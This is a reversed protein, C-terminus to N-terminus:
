KYTIAKGTPNYASQVVKGNSSVCCVTYTYKTGSKVKKDTWTTSATYGMNVWKGKGTKRYIRFKVAGKPKTFVFKVTKGSKKVSKLTPAAIYKITKGTTNYASTVTKGNSSVACVTYTYSTGSAAKKDNWYLNATYGLNVWSGKGVKRYVRYKAAGASKKWKFQVYGYCNAVSVLTPPAIYTIKWGTTNYTSTFATSAANLCRVTYQYATGAKVNKDTYTLATTDVLKAWGSSNKKYIRYKAAGNVKGITITVGGSISTLKTISPQAIYTVSLGTVDYPSAFASSDATICRVTYTYTKGSEVVKDDWTTGTTDGIEFWGIGAAVEKRFVRYKEAGTMADWAVLVYGNNVTVTKLVPAGLFYSSFGTENKSSIERGLSDVAAITYTYCTGLEVDLDTFKTGTVVAIPTFEGAYKRYIRYGYAGTSASWAFRLGSALSEFSTIAPQAYYTARWGSSVIDSLFTKGTEGVARVTYLYSEGSVVDTDIYGPEDLVAQVAWTTGNHRFIRYKPAGEVADWDIKLGNSVSKISTIRPTKVEYTNNKPLDVSVSSAFSADVVDGGVSVIDNGDADLFERFTPNLSITGAQLVTFNLAILIDGATFDYDKDSAFNMVYGKLGAASANDFRFVQASDAVVPAADVLSAELEAQSDGALYAFDVPIEVQGASIESSCTVKVTYTFTEGVDAVYTTDGVIIATDYAQASASVVGVMLTTLLIAATLVLSLIKKM